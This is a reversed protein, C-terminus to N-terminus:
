EAANPVSKTVAPIVAPSAGTKWLQRGLGVRLVSMLPACIRTASDSSGLPSQGASVAAVDNYPIAMEPIKFPTTSVTSPMFGFSRLVEM